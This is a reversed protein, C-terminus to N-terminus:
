NDQSAVQSTRRPRLQKPCYSCLDPIYTRHVNMRGLARVICQTRVRAISGGSNWVEWHNASSQRSVRRDNATWNFWCGYKQRDLCPHVVQPLPILHPTDMSAVDDPRFIMKRGTEAKQDEFARMFPPSCRSFWSINLRIHTNWNSYYWAM